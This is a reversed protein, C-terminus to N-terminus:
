ANKAAEVEEATMPKIKNGLRRAGTPTILYDEENRIGGFDRWKRMEDYCLFDKHLGQSEWLDMLQPIFYIGPEITLVFGPELARGLRLSKFGFQKSKEMGGYGVYKEGLNEMDHVDLGMMHGVGCPFFMAYAGSEAADRANGKVLGLGKLGECITEAAKLHVERFNVGPALMSVAAQHAGYLIDFVTRQQETFHAGVPMTSSLDGAYHMPSEGGADVLLMQGERMLNEQSHNHLTQGNVTCIIPFSMECGALFATKRIEAAVECELRGPRCARMAAVHMDVSRDVGIEIQEVEEPTKHNRMEAVAVIFDESPELEWQSLIKEHEARYPPLTHVKQGKKLAATVYPEFEARARVDSVGVLASMEKKTPMDGMWVIDDITLEDAFIIERDGDIDILACMGAYDSGFYYLMTSDQRFAYGNDRYNMGVEENGIFVLLGKGVMKKLEARRRIYTEERFYKM